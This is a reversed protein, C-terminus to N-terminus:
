KLTIAKIFSKLMEEALPLYKEDLTALTDIIKSVDSLKDKGMLATDASLGLGCCLKYLTEASPGKVGREIESLFQPSINVFECLGERTLGLLERQKRIRAGIQKNFDTKM